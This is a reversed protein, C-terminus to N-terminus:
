VLDYSKDKNTGWAKGKEDWKLNKALKEKRKPGHELIEGSFIYGKREVSNLPKKDFGVKPGSLFASSLVRM